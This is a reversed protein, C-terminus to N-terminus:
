VRALSFEVISCTASFLKASSHERLQAEIAVVAVDNEEEEGDEDIGEQAAQERLQGREAEM